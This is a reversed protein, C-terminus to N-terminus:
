GTPVEGSQCQPYLKVLIRCRVGKVDHGSEAHNLAHCLVTIGGIGDGFVHDGHRGRLVACQVQLDGRVM